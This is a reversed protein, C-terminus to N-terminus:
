VDRGRTFGGVFRKKVTFPLGSDELPRDMALAREPRTGYVDIDGPGLLDTVVGMDEALVGMQEALVDMHRDLASADAFVHIGTVETGDDNAFALFAAVRPEMERVTNALREHFRMYADLKGEKIKWTSVYVVPETMARGGVQFDPLQDSWLEQDAIGDLATERCGGIGASAGHVEGDEGADPDAHTL